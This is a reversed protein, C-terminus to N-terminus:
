RVTNSQQQQVPPLTPISSYAPYNPNVPPQPYDEEPLRSYGAGNTGDPPIPNYYHNYGTAPQSYNDHPVKSYGAGNTGDPPIPNYNSNFGNEGTGATFLLCFM